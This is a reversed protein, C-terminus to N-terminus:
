HFMLKGNNPGCRGCHYSGNGRRHRHFVRQCGPCVARWRGPPMVANDCCSRPVCGVTKAMAKWVPGHGFGPGCLAHAIEHKITELVLVETNILVFHRSLEITKTLHRCVGLRRKNENLLCRWENLRHQALLAKAQDLAAQLDM